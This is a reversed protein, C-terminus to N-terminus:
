TPHSRLTPGASSISWCLKRFICRLYTCLTLNSCLFSLRHYDIIRDLKALLAPAAAEAREPPLRSAPPPTNVCTKLLCSMSTKPVLKLLCRDFFFMSVIPFVRLWIALAWGRSGTCLYGRTARLRRCLNSLLAQASLVAKCTPTSLDQAHFSAQQLKQFSNPANHLDSCSAFQFLTSRHRHFTTPNGVLRNKAGVDM